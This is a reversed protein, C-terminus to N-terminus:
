TPNIRHLCAPGYTPWKGMTVFGENMALCSYDLHVCVARSLLFLHVSIEELRLSPCLDMHLPAKEMRNTQDKATLLVVDLPCLGEEDHCGYEM